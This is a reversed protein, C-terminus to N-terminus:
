VEKKNEKLNIHCVRKSSILEEMMKDPNKIGYHQHYKEAIVFFKFKEIKIFVEGELRNVYETYIKKEEENQYYLALTYSYGKDIYQGESDHIDVYETFIDLLENMSIKSEDYAIEVTERHKTKQSKVLEYTADKEVGGSYGVIIDKIGEINLSLMYNCICWFCGGAFYVKKM